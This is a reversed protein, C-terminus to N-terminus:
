ESEIEIEREREREREREHLSSQRLGSKRIKVNEFLVFKAASTQIFIYSGLYIKAM